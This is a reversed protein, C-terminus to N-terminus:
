DEIYRKVKELAAEADQYGQNYLHTLKAPDREFGNIKYLSAPRIILAKGEVELREVFELTENYRLYRNEMSKVIGPFQRYLAPMVRAFSSKKKRYGKERTLVVIPKTVGDALAKRIPIPDAVGGDMLLRGEFEVPQAMFPLSSSARVIALVDKAHQRKEFYVAEGTLCDTTGVVFEETAENYQHYDFPVLRNPIEDFILNMGFLERRVLLNKMSIYDPHRVYGITVERNRGTQRSIYSAANCAGASVGIVYDMFIQEELFKELVGGTYVGRMGGGELILGSKM